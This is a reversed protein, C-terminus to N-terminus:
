GPTQGASRLQNWASTVHAHPFLEEKRSSWRRLQEAAEDPNTIPPTRSALWHVSALLELGYPTEFGEIINAVRRLRDDVHELTSLVDSAEEIADPLLRLEVAPGRDGTHGRVFHGEMAELVHNLQDSYPGYIHEEFELGLPEGSAQLLYALKQFELATLPYGPEAYLEMLKIYMARARTMNPRQTRIPQSELSPAGVPAYLQVDVDALHALASEIMPRVDNWDLGGLRM